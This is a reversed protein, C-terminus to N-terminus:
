GDTRSAKGTRTTALNDVFRIMRPIKYPQLREALFARIEAETPAPPRALIEACLIHGMVSNRRGFVRVQGVGPHESLMAEVEHPNVKSGGVNVWDRERAVIRFRLPQESVVEVVDGTDYWDGIMAGGTFEGLLSQHVSLRGARVVVRDEMGPAIAFVDGDAVLLTGAETSAYVNHMRANPFLEGLKALLRADASEGGLTVSKVSHLPRDAPLLLRFFSPTASLHTVHHRELAALVQERGLGYVDVIPCGNALAQLYVQIAAVHTPNYALAWVAEAHRPSVKVARALNSIKQWVLKPLGTSGSTFLGIRASSNGAAATALSSQNVAKPFNVPKTHNLESRKIGLAEIEREGFDTDHLTIEEGFAIAKAIERLADQTSEPQCLPHLSAPKRNLDALLDGYNATVGTRGDIFWPRSEKDTVINAKLAKNCGVETM